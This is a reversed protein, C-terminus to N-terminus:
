EDEDEKSQTKYAHEVEETALALSMFSIKQWSM